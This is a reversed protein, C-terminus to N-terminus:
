GDEERVARRIGDPGEGRCVPWISRTAALAARIGEPHDHPVCTVARACALAEGLGANRHVYGAPSVRMAAGNGFSGCPGFDGADLRRQFMGGCGRTPIGAAGTACPRAPERGNLVAVAVAATCVTDDTYECAPHLLDFGKSKRRNWEFRSGVIDGPVAGWM